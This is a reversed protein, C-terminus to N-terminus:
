CTRRRSPQLTTVREVSPSFRAPSRRQGRILTLGSAITARTGASPKSCCAAGMGPWHDLDIVGAFVRYDRPHLTQEFEGIEKPEKKILGGVIPHRDGFSGVTFLWVPKQALAATHRRMLGTADATWSGDYVGSGFVVADYRDFDSIEEVSHVDVENGHTRVTDAIRMAIDRTSGFWSAYGILVRMTRTTM